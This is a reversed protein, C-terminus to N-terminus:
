PLVIYPPVPEVPASCRREESLYNLVANTRNLSPVAKLLVPKILWVNSREPVIRPKQHM